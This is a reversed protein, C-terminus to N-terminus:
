KEKKDKKDQVMQKAIMEHHQQRRKEIVSKSLARFGDAQNKMKHSSNLLSNDTNDTNDTNDSLKAIPAMSAIPDSEEMDYFAVTNFDSTIYKKQAMKRFKDLGTNHDAENLSWSFEKNTNFWIVGKIHTFNLRIQKFMDKIWKAKSEHSDSDNGAYEDATNPLDSPEVTAIEAILIPKHPFSTTLVAYQEEFLETFTSWETFSYNAGWNYGDLSTWDVMDDGPYYQTIDNYDDIDINNANWVWEIYQNAGAVEFKNHLYQWATIYANPDNSWPYWIGNFEHAFRLLVRANPDDRDKMWLMFNAIWEDIYDDWHGQSIEPLLNDNPRDALTPELTIMPTAGENVINSCQVHLQNWDYDFSTFINIIALEQEIDSEFEIIKEPNYADELLYAGLMIDQNKESANDSAMSFTPTSTMFIFLTIFIFNRM